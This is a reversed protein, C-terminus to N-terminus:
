RLLLHELVRQLNDLEPADPALPIAGVGEIPSRLAHPDDIATGRERAEFFRFDHGPYLIWVAPAQLADRYTHMKYLDAHKFVGRRENALEAEDPDPNEPAVEAIRRLRFKADFLTKIGPPTRLVIDPRLPLSYSPRQTNTRSFSLNYFLETGNPWEIRLDFPLYTQLATTVPAQALSPPGLIKTVAHQVEFFCWLEYLAAIDKIELLTSTDTDFPIRTAMRMRLFHHFVERYGRRRQLVMSEAPLRRMQGVGSLLGARAFPELQRLMRDCDGEIRAAFSRGRSAAQTRIQEIIGIAQEIFAKVFRNEPVDFTGRV